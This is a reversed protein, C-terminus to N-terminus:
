NSINLYYDRHLVLTNGYKTRVRASIGLQKIVKHRKLVNYQLTAVGNITKVKIAKPDLFKGEILDSLYFKADPNQDSLYLKLIFSNQSALQNVEKIIITPQGVPTGDNNFEKLGVAPAGMKFEVEAQLKGDAWYTKVISDVRGEKYFEERYLEGSAYYLTVPGNQQDNKFLAKSAIKGNQPNYTIVWGEYLGDVVPAISKLRGSEDYTKITGNPVGDKVEIAKKITGDSYYEKIVKPRHTCSLILVPISVIVFLIFRKMSNLKTSFCNIRFYSIDSELPLNKYLFFLLGKVGPIDDLHFISLESPSSNKM